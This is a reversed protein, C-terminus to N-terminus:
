SKAGNRGGERGGDGGDTLGGQGGGGAVNDNALVRVVQV